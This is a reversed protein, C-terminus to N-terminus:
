SYNCLFALLLESNPPLVDDKAECSVDSLSIFEILTVDDACISSTFIVDVSVTGMFAIEGVCLPLSSSSSTSVEFTASIVQESKSVDVFVLWSKSSSSMSVCIFLLIIHYLTSREAARFSNFKSFALVADIASSSKLVTVVSSSRSHFTSFSGFFTKDIDAAARSDILGFRELKFRRRSATSSSSSSSTPRCSRVPPLLRKVSDCEDTCFFGFRERHQEM